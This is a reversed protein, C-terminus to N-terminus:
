LLWSPGTPMLSIRQAPSWELLQCLVCLKHSTELLAKVVLAPQFPGCMYTRELYRTAANQKGRKADDIRRKKGSPQVHTFSPVAAWGDPFLQNVQATLAGARIERM